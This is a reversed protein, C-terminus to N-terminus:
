CTPSEETSQRSKNLIPDKPQPSIESHTPKPERTESASSSSTTQPKRLNTSSDLLRSFIKIFLTKFLFISLKKFRMGVWQRGEQHYWIRYIIGWLEMQVTLRIRITIIRRRFSLTARSLFRWSTRLTLCISILRRIAQIIGQRMRRGWSGEKALYESARPDFIRITTRLTPSIRMTCIRIQSLRLGSISRFRKALSSVWRRLILRSKSERAKAGKGRIDQRRSRARSILEAWCWLRM